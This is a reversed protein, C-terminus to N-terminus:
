EDACRADLHTHTHTDRDMLNIYCLPWLLSYCAMITYISMLVKIEVDIM